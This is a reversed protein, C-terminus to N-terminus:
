KSLKMLFVKKDSVFRLNGGTRVASVIIVTRQQGQFNEASGVSIGDHGRECLKNRIYQCQKSYPSLVGIDSQVLAKGDVKLKSLIEAICELVINVENMNYRYKSM